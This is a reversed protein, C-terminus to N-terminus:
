VEEPAAYLTGCTRCARVHCHTANKSSAYRRGNAFELDQKPTAKLLYSGARSPSMPNPTLLFHDEPSRKAGCGCPVAGDFWATVDPM